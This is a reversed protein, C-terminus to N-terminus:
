RLGMERLAYKVHRKAKYFRSKEEKDVVFDLIDWLKREAESLLRAVEGAYKIVPIVKKRKLEKESMIVEKSNTAM